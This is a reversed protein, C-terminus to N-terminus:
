LQFGPQYALNYRRSRRYSPLVATPRLAPTPAIPRAQRVAVERRAATAELLLPKPVQVALEVNPTQAYRDRVAREAQIAAEQKLIAYHNRPRDTRRAHLRNM